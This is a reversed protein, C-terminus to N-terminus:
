TNEITPEPSGEAEAEPAEDSDIPTSAQSHHTEPINEKSHIETQSNIANNVLQDYPNKVTRIGSSTRDDTGEILDITVSVPSFLPVHFASNSYIQLVSAFASQLATQIVNYWLTFLSLHILHRSSNISIAPPHSTYTHPHLSRRHPKCPM